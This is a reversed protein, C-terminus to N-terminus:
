LLGKWWPASRVDHSAVVTAQARLHSGFIIDALPEDRWACGPSRVSMSVTDQRAGVDVKTLSFAFVKEVSPRQACTRNLDLLFVKPTPLRQWWLARVVGSLIVPSVSGNFAITGVRQGERWRNSIVSRVASDALAYAARGAARLLNAGRQGLVVSYTDFWIGNRWVRLAMADCGGAADTRGSKIGIVGHSGLLPTYTTVVGADPLVVSTQRVISRVLPSSMLPEVIRMLQAATSVNLSGIGSVDEFHTSTMHLLQARANMEAVFSDVTRQDLEVLMEAYNNASHVFLGNLLDIECLETGAIVKVVSQNAAQEAVFNKVDQKSVYLCPGRQGLRLPLDRLVITATMLKTLSAIPASVENPSNREVGLSPVAVASSGVPAFAIPPFKHPTTELSALHLTFHPLATTATLLLSVVVASAVIVGLTAGLLRFGTGRWRSGARM